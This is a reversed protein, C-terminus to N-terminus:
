RVAAPALENSPPCGTEAYTIPTARVMPTTVLKLPGYDGAASNMTVTVTSTQGPDMAVRIRAVPRGDQFGSNFLYGNSDPAEFSEYTAGVPGIAVVDYTIVGNFSSGIVYPPLVSPDLPVNSTVTVATVTSFGDPECVPAYVRVATDTYYNLKSTSFGNIFAGVVTEPENTTPLVGSLTTPLIIEQEQPITSWILLRREDVAKGLAAVLDKSDGKGSKVVDFVARASAAFFRDQDGFDLYRSYVDSLVLPVVNDATLVDGTELVVDGAAGLLYSLAVPDFSVVTDITTGFEREWFGKALSAAISFDPFHTINTIHGDIAGYPLDGAYLALLDAPIDIPPSDRPFDRGSAQATLDIRGNDVTVLALSAPNGGLARTEANNQFMLLYNRPGNAGLMDPMLNVATRLVGLTSSADALVGELEAVADNVADLTFTTDIAQSRLLAETVVDDALAVSEQSEIIPQINIQGDIPKFSSIDITTALEVVPELGDDSVYAVVEAAQRFATLNSGLSPFSEAVRWIPDGTLAVALTTHAQLDGLKAAAQEPENALLSKKVEDALPIAAELESKAILGRIGIWAVVFVFLSAGVILAIRRARRPPTSM